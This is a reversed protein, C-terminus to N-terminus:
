NGLRSNHWRTVSFINIWGGPVSLKWSSQQHHLQHPQCKSQMMGQMKTLLHEHRTKWGSRVKFLAHSTRACSLGHTSSPPKLFSFLVFLVFDWIGLSQHHWCFHNRPWTIALKATQYKKIRDISSPTDEASWGYRNCLVQSSLIDKLSMNKTNSHFYFFHRSQKLPCPGSNM